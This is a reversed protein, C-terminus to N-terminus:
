RMHKRRKMPLGHLKRWNNQFEKGFLLRYAFTDKGVDAASTIEGGYYEPYKEPQAVINVINTIEGINIKHNEDKGNALFLNKKQPLSDGSCQGGRWKVPM